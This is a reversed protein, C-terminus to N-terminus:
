TCRKVARPSFLLCTWKLQWWWCGLCPCNPLLFLCSALSLHPSLVLPTYTILSVLTLIEEIHHGLYNQCKGQLSLSNLFVSGCTHTLHSSQWHCIPVKQSQWNECHADKIPSPICQNTHTDSYIFLNIQLHSPLLCPPSLGLVPCFNSLPIVTILPSLNHSFTLLSFLSLSLCDLWTQLSAQTKWPSSDSTSICIGAWWLGGRKGTVRNRKLERRRLQQNVVVTDRIPLHPYPLTRSIRWPVSWLLFFCLSLSVSHTHTHEPPLSPPVYWHTKWFHSLPSSVFIHILNIPFFPHFFPNFSPPIYPPPPPPHLHPSFMQKTILREGWHLTVCM